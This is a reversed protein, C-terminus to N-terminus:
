GILVKINLLLRTHTYTRIHRQTHTRNNIRPAGHPGSTLEYRSIICVQDGAQFEWHVGARGVNTGVLCM